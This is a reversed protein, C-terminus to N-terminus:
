EKWWGNKDHYVSFTYMNEISHLTRSLAKREVKLEYPPQKLLELIKQQHLHKKASSHKQLIQYVFLPLMSKISNSQPRKEDYEDLEEDSMQEIQELQSRIASSVMKVSTAYEHLVFSEALRRSESNILIEPAGLYILRCLRQAFLITEYAFVNKGIRERSQKVILDHYEDIYKEEDESVDTKLNEELIELEYQSLKEGKSLRHAIEQTLTIYEYRDSIDRIKEFDFSEIDFRRVYANWVRYLEPDKLLEKAKEPHKRLEDEFPGIKKIAEMVDTIKKVVSEYKSLNWDLVFRYDYDPVPEIINTFTHSAPIYLVGDEDTREFMQAIYEQPTPNHDLMTDFPEYSM